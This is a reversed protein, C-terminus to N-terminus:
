AAILEQAIRRAEQDSAILDQLDPQMIYTAKSMVSECLEPIALFGIRDKLFASVAVENAANMVCPMNGGMNLAEYALALNRFNEEDPREFSLSGYDALNFDEVPSKLRNPYSLAYQIPTRMDPNGLQAKISGDDFEVMSHIISQPHVLVEIQQTPLGFLWHAEIMELGKNMMTASDISIKCGMDWVPHKLAQEKTVARLMERTFGRFPGGSATLIIRRVSKSDEGQLCQFIASHESDVPILKVNASLARQTVIDGAVVLAEKNALAIQKGSDISQLLPALGAFGVMAALVMEIDPQSLAHGIEDDSSYVKIGAPNLAEFVDRSLRSDGIAVADPKFELAQRILSKVNSGASLLSVRFRDPHRKVVELAQTGISGTSGLIAINKPNPHSSEIASSM